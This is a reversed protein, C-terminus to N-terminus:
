HSGRMAAAAFGPGAVDPKVQDVPLELAGVAGGNVDHVGLRLFYNGKVPVAIHALFPLGHELMELYMEDTFDFAADEQVSNVVDGGADYLVGVFQVHGHHLGKATPILEINRGSAHFLIDYTRFPKHQWPAALFNDAPMPDHKGIKTVADGARLSAIFVIETPPVAGLQMAAGFGGRSRILTGVPIPALHAATLPAPPPPAAPPAVGHQRKYKEIERRVQPTHPWAYYGHRYELRAGPRDVAISISRYQGEWKKNDTMYAVTYYGSSSAIVRGLIAGPDNSNDFAKGGTEDAVKELNTFNAFLRQAYVATSFRGPRGAYGASWTPDPNVGRVDVPYVAVRSTVLAATLEQSEGEAAAQDTDEFISVSDYFPDGFGYGLMTMPAEGTFWILNKRGPFGALYQGLMRMGDRLIESRARFNYYYGGRVPKSLSPMDRRSQAAALLVQPDATFGQILHMSTDLQFIAVPTGPPMRRFYRVLQQRLYQQSAIPTDLADLLVVTSVNTNAVPTYNTFTNPPMHPAAALRAMAEAMMPGHWTVRRITQPDGQETLHFDAATLGPVPHGARDTVVVDLLVERVTVHFTPVPRPGAPPAPAPPGQQPLAPVATFLSLISLWRVNRAAFM